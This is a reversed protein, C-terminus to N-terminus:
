FTSVSVINSTCAMAGYASREHNKSSLSTIEPTNSATIHEPANVSISEPCVSTSPLSRSIVGMSGANKSMGMRSVVKCTHESKAQM